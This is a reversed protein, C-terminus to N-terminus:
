CICRAGAGGTRRVYKGSYEGYFDGGRATSCAWNSLTAGGVAVSRAEGCPPCGHAGHASLIEGPGVCVAGGPGGPMVGTLMALAQDRQAPDAAHDRQLHDLRDKAHLHAPQCHKGARWTCHGAGDLRSWPCINIAKSGRQETVLDGGFHQLVYRINAYAGYQPPPSRKPPPQPAVQPALSAAAAPSAAPRVPPVSPPQLPHLMGGVPFQEEVWRRWADAFKEWDGEVKWRSTSFARPWPGMNEGIVLRLADGGSQQRFRTAAAGTVTGQLYLAAGGGGSLAGHHLAELDAPRVTLMTGEGCDYLRLASSHPELAAVVCCWARSVSRLLTLSAAPRNSSSQAALARPLAAVHGQLARRMAAAHEAQWMNSPAIPWVDQGQVAPPRTVEAFVAPALPIDEATCRHARRVPGLERLCEGLARYCAPSRSQERRLRCATVVVWELGGTEVRVCAWYEAGELVVLRGMDAVGVTHTPPVTELQLWRKAREEWPQPAHMRQQQMANQVHQLPVTMLMSMGGDAAAALCLLAHQMCAGPLGVGHPVDAVDLPARPAPLADLVAAPLEGLSPLRAIPGMDGNLVVAAVWRRDLASLLNGPRPVRLLTGVTSM